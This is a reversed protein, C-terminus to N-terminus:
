HPFFSSFVRKWGAVAADWPTLVVEREVVVPVEVVKEVVQPQNAQNVFALAKSTDFNRVFAQQESTEIAHSKYEGRVLKVPDNYGMYEGGHYDLCVKAMCGMFLGTRGIGGMCGAYIDSGELMFKLSALIGIAMDTESPVSFDETPISIEHPHNIEEAMKVGILRRTGQRYLVFRGGFVTGHIKGMSVVVGSKLEM